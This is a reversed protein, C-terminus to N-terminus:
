KSTDCVFAEGSTLATSGMKRVLSVTYDTIRAMKSYNLKDPTDSEEHYHQWRGCSLFLYPVGSEFRRIEVYSGGFVKSFWEGDVFDRDLWAWAHGFEHRIIDLLTGGM